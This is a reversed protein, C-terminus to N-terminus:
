FAPSNTRKDKEYRRRERKAMDRASIVLANKNKKYIFFVSLYRGFETQGLALYVDEGIVDGKELFYVKPRSKLVENVEDDAVHHKWRLKDSVYEPIIVRKILL